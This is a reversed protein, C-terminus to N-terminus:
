SVVTSTNLILWNTGNSRCRKPGGAADTVDIEYTNFSAASPLTALTYQGVRVPGTFVGRVARVEMWQLAATGLRRTADINPVMEATTIQAFQLALTGDGDTTSGGTATIRGARTGRGTFLDIYPTNAITKSGLEVRANAAYSCFKSPGIAFSGADDGILLAPLSAATFFAPVTAGTDLRVIADSVPNRGNQPGVLLGWKWQAGSTGLAGVVFGADWKDAQKAGSSVASYGSRYLVNSNEDIVVNSECGNAHHVYASNRIYTFFNHSFYEGRYKEATGHNGGGDSFVSSVCGVFNTDAGSEDNPATQRLIFEAAHRGGTCGAGGFRHEVILGDVKSGAVGDREADIRDEKILLRNLMYTSSAGFGTLPQSIELNFGYTLTDARTEGGGGGFLSLSRGNNIVTGEGKGRIRAGGEYFIKAIAPIELTGSTVAYDGLGNESSVEIPSKGAAAFLRSLPIRNDTPVSSHGDGVAKFWQPKYPGTFDRKYTFQDSVFVTGFDTEDGQVYISRTFPGSIGPNTVQIKNSSGKYNILEEYDAVQAPITPKLLDIAELSDNVEWGSSKYIYEAQKDTNYYRDGLQLPLGNDRVTPATSSPALFGATRITAVEAAEEAASAAENSADLATQIATASLATKGTNVATGGQNQWVTYIEDADNSQVLFIGQDATAALGAAVSPYITTSISIKEAADQQIELVVQKLNQIDGSQTPISDANAADNAFRYVINSGVEARVTAIELRQTQDAM